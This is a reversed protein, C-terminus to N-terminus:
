SVYVTKEQLNGGNEMAYKKAEVINMSHYKKFDHCLHAQDSYGYQYVADLVDFQRNYVIDNWLYQYRFMSALSKPTVGVYERFLRELQRESIHLEKRLEGVQINGKNKLMHCVAQLVINNKHKENYYELLVKEVKPILQYVDNTEFLMPEITKKLRSFHYGVDFFANKTDRMSEEAFMPVGWVYFRIAFLFLTKHEKFFNHTTFARDNIGCFSSSIKNNTFDVTFIIDMCTDPTVVGITCEPKVEQEIIEKTGWFCRIYPKLTDCPEFEMYDDTCKFPNATIPNYIKYLEM